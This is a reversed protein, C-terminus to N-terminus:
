LFSKFYKVSSLLFQQTLLASPQFRFASPKFRFVYSLYYTMGPKSGPNKKHGKVSTSSYIRFFVFTTKLVLLNGRLRECHRNTFHLRLTKTLHSKRDFPSSPTSPFNCTAKAFGRLSSKQASLQFRLASPQFSLTNVSGMM